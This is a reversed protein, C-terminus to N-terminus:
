PLGLKSRAQAGQLPVDTIVHPVVSGRLVALSGQRGSGVGALVLPQAKGEGAGRGSGLPAVALDRVPGISALM